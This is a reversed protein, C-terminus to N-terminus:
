NGPSEGAIVDEPDRIFKPAFEVAVKDDYDISYVM